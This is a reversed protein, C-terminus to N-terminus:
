WTEISRIISNVQKMAENRVAEITSHPQRQAILPMLRTVAHLRDAVSILPTTTHPENLIFKLGSLKSEDSLFRSNNDEAIKEEIPYHQFQFAIRTAANPYDIPMFLGASQLRKMASDHEIFDGPKWNPSYLINVPRDKNLWDFTLTSTTDDIDFLLPPTNPDSFTVEYLNNKIYVPLGLYLTLDLQGKFHTLSQIM